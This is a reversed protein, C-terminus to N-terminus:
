EAPVRYLHALVWTWSGQVPVIEQGEELGVGLVWGQQVQSVGAKILLACVDTVCGDLRLTPRCASIEYQGRGEELYNEGM